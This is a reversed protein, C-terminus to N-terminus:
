LAEYLGYRDPFLKKALGELAKARQYVLPKHGLRWGKIKSREEPTFALESLAVAGEDRIKQFNLRKGGPFHRGLIQMVSLYVPLSELPRVSTPLKRRLEEIDTAPGVQPFETILARLEHADSVQLLGGKEFAKGLTPYIGEFSLAVGIGALLERHTGRALTYRSREVDLSGGAFAFFGELFPRRFYPYFILADLCPLVTGADVNFFRKFGAVFDKRGIEVVHMNGVARPPEPRLRFTREIKNILELALEATPASFSISRQDLSRARALFAGIIYSTEHDLMNPIRFDKRNLRESSRLLTPPLAGKLLWSDAPLNTLRKIQNPSVGREYMRLVLELNRLEEGIREFRVAKQDPSERESKREAEALVTQAYARIKQASARRYNM